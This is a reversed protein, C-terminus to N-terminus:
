FSHFILILPLDPLMMEYHSWTNRSPYLIQYKSKLKEFNKINHTELKIEYHDFINAIINIKFNNTMHSIKYVTHQRCFFIKHSTISITEPNWQQSSVGHGICSKYIFVNLHPQSVTESTKGPLFCTLVWASMNSSFSSLTRCRLRCATSPSQTGCLAYSSCLLGSLGRGCHYGEQLLAEGRLQAVGQPWVNLCM